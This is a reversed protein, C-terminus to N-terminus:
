MDAACIRAPINQYCVPRLFREIALTGVSSSRVDSTAPFPGGHVMAPSVEVGTPWGNMLLRGAKRELVPIMRGATQEDEDSAHITATLQGELGRLVAFVADMDPCRVVLSAAGFVEDQLNEHEVFDNYSVSFLVGRCQHPGAGDKMEGVLAVGNANKLRDIKSQYAAAIGATLMTAPDLDQLVAVATALFDDLHPSDVAVILGPNTCFQGAGLTLSAVFGHALADTHAALAGPLLVVPNISSMEAHVPIPEDRRAALEVLALGGQRSGTFGIAKVRPDCALREGVDQGGQVLSFVGEPMGHKRAAALVARAVLEGTGPHAPHGKVIVPCGAALASATDGGATSFALPFNSAGFVAVPGLPIKRLRLEPRPAPARDPLAPEFREDRWAEESLLDAFMKLQQVTRTREGELRAQPLATESVARDILPAGLNIIEEAIGHLFGARRESAIRRFPDFAADALSCAAAIDGAQAVSFPPALEKNTQPDIACFAQDGSVSEFGILNEGTVNM